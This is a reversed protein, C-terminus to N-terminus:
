CYGPRQGQIILQEVGDFTIAGPTGNEPGYQYVGTLITQATHSSQTKNSVTHLIITSTSTFYPLVFLILVLGLLAPLRGKRM